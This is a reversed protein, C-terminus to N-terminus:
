PRASASVQEERLKRISGAYGGGTIAGGIDQSVLQLHEIRMRNQHFYSWNALTARLDGGFHQIEQFPGRGQRDRHYANSNRYHDLLTAHVAPFRFVGNGAADIAAPPSGQVSGRGGYRATMAAGRLIGAPVTVTVETECRVYKPMTCDTIKPGGKQPKWPFHAVTCLPQPTIGIVEPARFPRADFQIAALNDIPGHRLAQQTDDRLDHEVRQLLRALDESRCVADRAEALWARARSVFTYREYALKGGFYLPVCLLALALLKLM